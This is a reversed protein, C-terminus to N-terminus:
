SAPEKGLACAAADGGACASEVLSDFAPTPTSPTSPCGVQSLRQIALQDSVVPASWLMILSMKVDDCYVSGVYIQGTPDPLRARTLRTPEPHLIGPVSVDEIRSDDVKAGFGSSLLERLFLRYIKLDGNVNGVIYNLALDEGDLSRYHQPNVANV